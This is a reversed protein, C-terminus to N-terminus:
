RLKFFLYVASHSLLFIFVRAALLSYFNCIFNYFRLRASFYVRIRPVNCHIYLSPGSPLPPPPSLFSPPIEVLKVRSRLVSLVIVIVILSTVLRSVHLLAALSLPSLQGRCRRRGRLLCMIEELSRATELM